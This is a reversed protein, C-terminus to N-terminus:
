PRRSDLLGTARALTNLVSALDRVSVTITEDPLRGDVKGCLRDIAEIRAIMSNREFRDM